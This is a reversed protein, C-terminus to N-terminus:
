RFLTGLDSWSALSTKIELGNKRLKLKDGLEYQLDSWLALRTKIELGNM